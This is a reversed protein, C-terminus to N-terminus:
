NKVIKIVEKKSNSSVEFFYAGTSLSSIDVNNEIGNLSKTMVVKGSLDTVSLNASDTDPTSITVVSTAPNPYVKFKSANFSQNGLVGTFKFIGDTFEDANFGGCWGTTTNLFANVGRQTTGGVELDTWSTGNDTSVSTGYPTAASTAVIINTGPVYSLLRRTGTFTSGTSWTTGGNSTTYFTYTTGVTKLLCGNNPTSFDAQGSQAASGFDTLPAQAVSWTVGRDTTRFLRGKNTTFWFSDGNAIYGGNYGYEGSLPNPMSAPPIANWTAGGDTTRYVEFEGSAGAPDGMTVGVNADWFHVADFWSEGATTYATTNQPTWTDGGDTTKFVGGLGNTQDYAGVWATTASVPSINTISLTTDGVDFTKANWSTGGNTTITFDQVNAGAGSGDYAVAWVTNADVIKIEGIGRSADLFGTAQSTWQANAASTLAILSFSLLLKKM